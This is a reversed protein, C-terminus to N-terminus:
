PIEQIGWRNFNMATVRVGVKGNPRHFHEIDKIRFDGVLKLSNGRKRLAIELKETSRFAYFLERVMGSCFVLERDMIHRSTFPQIYEDEVIEWKGIEALRSGDPMRISGRDGALRQTSM